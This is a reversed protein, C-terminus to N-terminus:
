GGQRGPRGGMGGAGGQELREIVQAPVQDQSLQAMIRSRAQEPMRANGEVLAILRARHEPELTVLGADAGPAAANEAGTEVAGTEVADTEVAGSEVAGSEVADPADRRLPRVAIGAGLMPGIETVVDRGELDGVRILVADGQRRVVDVVAAELRNDATVLLVQGASGLATAPLLAVGDLAPETVRVSVFDGPRFGRAADMQAYILRGSQGAGVSAGVRNLVAHSVIETGAVDLSVAVPLPQLAGEADLLRLYQATSVRFAIELDDPDILQGIRENGGVLGGASVTVEALTGAFEARLETDALRREAEALSLRQRDLATEAQAVRAVAQAEAQRRSVVSQRASSAALEAEETAADTSVGRQALDQRRALARDRLEAQAQAAAVDERALERAAVADRVEGEARTLDSATIDRAAQADAPDLRMLVQGARVSAGDEFGDALYVVRGATSARLDLARRARVEGFTMLAPSIQAPSLAVVPVTFVRERAMRPRDGAAARTEAAQMVTYGAYALLGFSLAMFLLGLLSRTLFRM